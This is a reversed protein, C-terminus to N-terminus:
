PMWGTETKEKCVPRRFSAEPIHRYGLNPGPYGLYDLGIGNYAGGYFASRIARYALRMLPMEEQVKVLIDVRNEYTLDIFSSGHNSLSLLDMLGALAQAQERFPYQDDLLLNIACSELGGPTGDPDTDPGPILTDVMAALTEEVIGVPQMCANPLSPRTFGPSLFEGAAKVAGAGAAAILLGVVTQGMKKLFTRRDSRSLGVEIFKPQKPTQETM